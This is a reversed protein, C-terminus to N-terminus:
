SFLVVVFDVDDDKYSKIFIRIKTLAFGFFSVSSFRNEIVDGFSSIFFVFNMLVKESQKAEEREIVDNRNLKQRNEKRKM